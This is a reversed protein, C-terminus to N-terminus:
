TNSSSRKSARCARTRQKFGSRNTRLTPPSRASNFCSPTSSESAGRLSRQWPPCAASCSKWIRPGHAPLSKLDEVKLRLTKEIAAHQQQRSALENALETCREQAAQLQAEAVAKEETLQELACELEDHQTRFIASSKGARTTQSAAPSATAGREQHRGWTMPPLRSRASSDAVGSELQQTHTELKSGRNKQSALEAELALLQDGLQKEESQLSALESTLSQVFAQHEKSKGEIQQQSDARGRELEATLQQIGQELEAIQEVLQRTKAAHQQLQSEVQDKHSEVNQMAAQLLAVQQEHQAQVQLTFAKADELEKMLQQCQEEAQLSQARAANLQADQQERQQKNEKVQAELKEVEAALVQQFKQRSGDLQQQLQQKEDRLARLDGQLRQLEQRHATEADSLKTQMELELKELEQCILAIQEEHAKIVQDKRALAQEAVM